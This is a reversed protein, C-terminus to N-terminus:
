VRMRAARASHGRVNLRIENPSPRRNRAPDRGPVFSLRLGCDSSRRRVHPRHIGPEPSSMCDNGAQKSL